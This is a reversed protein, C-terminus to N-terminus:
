RALGRLADVPRRRTVVVGHWQPATSTGNSVREEM